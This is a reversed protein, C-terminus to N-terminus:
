PILGRATLKGDASSKVSSCTSRTQPTIRSMTLRDHRPPSKAPSCPLSRVEVRAVSNQFQYSARDHPGAGVFRKCPSMRAGFAPEPRQRDRTDQGCQEDAAKEQTRLARNGVPVAPSLGVRLADRQIQQLGARGNELRLDIPAAAARAVDFRLELE